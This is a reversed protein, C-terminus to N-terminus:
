ASIEGESGGLAILAVSPVPIPKGVLFDQVVLQLWEMSCQGEEITIADEGAKGTIRYKSIDICIEKEEGVLLVEVYIMRAKSRIRLDVVQGYRDIKGALFSKAATSAISDKLNGLMSGKVKTRMGEPAVPSVAESM